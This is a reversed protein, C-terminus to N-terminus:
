WLKPLLPVYKIYCQKSVSHSRRSTMLSNLVTISISLASRCSSDTRSSYYWDASLKALDKSIDSLIGQRHPLCVVLALWGVSVGFWSQRIEKYSGNRSWKIVSSRLDSFRKWACCRSDRATSLIVSSWTAVIYSAYWASMSKNNSSKLLSTALHHVRQAM